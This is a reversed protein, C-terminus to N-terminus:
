VPVGAVSGKGVEGADGPVTGGSPNYGHLLKAVGIADRVLREDKALQDREKYSLRTNDANGNLKLNDRKAWRALRLDLQWTNGIEFRMRLGGRTRERWYDFFQRLMERPYTDRFAAIADYFVKEREEISKGTGKHVKPLPKYAEVVETESQQSTAACAAREKADTLISEKEQIKKVKSKKNGCENLTTEVDNGDYRNSVKRKLASKKGANSYRNRKEEFVLMRKNLSESYIYKGDGTFAFLGFDEVISKVLNPDVRLDFAIMNYDKVCKYLTSERLREIIAFYIGYGEMGYKMRVSIIREDNRANCDHPFYFTDKM